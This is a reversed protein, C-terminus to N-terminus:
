GCDDVPNEGARAVRRIGHASANEAEVTFQIVRVRHSGRSQDACALFREVATLRALVPALAVRLLRGLRESRGAVPCAAADEDDLAVVRPAEM